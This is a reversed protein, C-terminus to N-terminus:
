KSALMFNEEVIADSNEDYRLARFNGLDDFRGYCVRDNINSTMVFYGDDTTLLLTGYDIEKGNEMKSIRYGNEEPTFIFEEKDLSYTAPADTNLDKTQMTSANEKQTSAPTTEQAIAPAIIMLLLMLTLSKM